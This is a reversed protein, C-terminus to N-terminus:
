AASQDILKWYKDFAHCCTMLSQLLEPTNRYKEKCESLYTALFNKTEQVADLTVEDGEFKRYAIKFPFTVAMFNM